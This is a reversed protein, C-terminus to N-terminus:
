ERMVWPLYTTHEQQTCNTLTIQDLYWSTTTANTRAQAHFRMTQGIYPGLDFEAAQWRGPTSNQDLTLLTALIADDPSRLTITLADGAAMGDAPDMAWLFNLRAAPNGAPLTVDQFLYQDVYEAGGFWAGEHEEGTEDRYSATLYLNQTWGDYGNDFDPNQILQQCPPQTPAPTPTVTPTATPTPTFAPTPTLTPASTPTPSPTPTTQVPQCGQLVTPPSSCVQLSVDDVYMASIGNAGDNKVGFYLTIAQDLYESTDYSCTLWAADNRKGSWITHLRGNKDRVQVYQLDNADLPQSLPYAHWSLVLHAGAPITVGQNMSSYAYKNEGSVIGLRASRAPSFFQDASYGGQVATVPFHWGAGTEMNGNVILETCGDGEAQTRMLRPQFLFLSFILLLFLSLYVIKRM